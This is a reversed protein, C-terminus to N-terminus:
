EEPEIQLRLPYGRQRAMDVVHMVKTEAVELSYLGCVGLGRRRIAALITAADDPTRAFVTVLVETQFGEPTGADRLMLVKYKKPRRRTARTQEPLAGVAGAGGADVRFSM